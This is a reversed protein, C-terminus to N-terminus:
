IRNKNIKERKKIKVKKGKKLKYFSYLMSNKKSTKKLKM